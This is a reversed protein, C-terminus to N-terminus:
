KPERFLINVPDGKRIGLLEAANGSNVSVELMGSSNYHMLPEGPEVSAYTHKIGELIASGVFCKIPRDGRRAGLMERSVNTICNGFRDVHVVWGQVGQEDIIPLAWQMPSLAEIPSGITALEIGASLHAAAPAFVDRGHFTASVDDSRWYAPNDLVVSSEPREGDLVLPLIGNDPGVFYQHRCRLAVPRRPTGVGPDVVILHITEPPFFFAADRLVFAGEMVDQPAIAHSIDVMRVDPNIGIIVGKM